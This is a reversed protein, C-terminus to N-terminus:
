FIVPIQLYETYFVQASINSGMILPNIGVFVDDGVRNFTRKQDNILISDIVFYDKLEFVFTDLQSAIVKAKITINGEVYVSTREVNIDLKYFKVDYKDMMLSQKSATRVIGSSSLDKVKIFMEINLLYFSSFLFSFFLTVIKKM